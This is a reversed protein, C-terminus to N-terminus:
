RQPKASWAAVLATVGPLAPLILLTLGLWLPVIRDYHEGGLTADIALVSMGVAFLTTVTARVGRDRKAAWITAFWGIMGLAGVIVLYVAIATRDAAIDAPGWNPYAERVHRDITGFVGLDLLPLAICLVQLVAGVQAAQVVYAWRRSSRAPRTQEHVAM